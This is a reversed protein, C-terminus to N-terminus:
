VPDLGEDCAGIGGDGFPLTEEGRQFLKGRSVEVPDCCCCATQPLGRLTLLCKPAAVGLPSLPQGPQELGCHLHVLLVAVGIARDAAAVVAQVAFADRFEPSLDFPQAGFCGRDEVGSTRCETGLAGRTFRDPRNRLHQACRRVCACSDIDGRQYCRPLRPDVRRVGREVQSRMEFGHAQLHLLRSLSDAGRSCLPSAPEGILPPRDGVRQGLHQRDSALSLSGSPTSPRQSAGLVPQLPALGGDAVLAEVRDLSLDRIDPFGQGDAGVDRELVHAESVLLHDHVYGDVPVGADRESDHRLALQM